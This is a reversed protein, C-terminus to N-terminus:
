LSSWLHEFTAGEDTSTPQSMKEAGLGSPPESQSSPLLVRTIQPPRAMGQKLMGLPQAPCVGRSVGWKM